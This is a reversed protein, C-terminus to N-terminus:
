SQPKRRNQMAPSNARREGNERAEGMRVPLINPNTSELTENRSPIVSQPNEGREAGPRTHTHSSQEPYCHPRHHHRAQHRGSDHERVVVRPNLEELLLDARHQHLVTLTTVRNLRTLRLLQLAAQKQIASGPDRRAPIRPRRQHLPLGRLAEQHLGQPEFSQLHRRSPCQRIVDDGVKGYPDVHTRRVRSRSLRRRLHLPLDINFLPLVPPRESRESRNGRRIDRLWDVTKHTLSLLLGADGGGFGRALFLEDPPSVEVKDTQWRGGFLHRREDRILRGVGEVLHDVLQQGTGSVAFAPPPVPQIGRPERLTASVLEITETRPGIVIAVPHDFREVGIHRKILEDTQLQRPIDQVGFVEVRRRRRTKQHRPRIGALDGGLRDLPDPIVLDVVHQHGNATRHETQREATHATVLVLVVRERM